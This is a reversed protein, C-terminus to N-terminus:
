VSPEKFLVDRVAAPLLKGVEIRQILGHKHTTVPGLYSAADITIGSAVFDGADLRVTEACKEAILGLLRKEGNDDPYHVLIIRTSLQKESSRGSTVESLDIVPVSTGGYNFVGAIGPPTHPISKMGVMPLVEVIESAALAYRDKALQFLVFLM